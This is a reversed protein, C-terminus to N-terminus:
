SRVQLIDLLVVMGLLFMTSAMVLMWLGFGIAVIFELPEREFASHLTALIM